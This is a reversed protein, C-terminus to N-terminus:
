PLDGPDAFAGALLLQQLLAPLDAAPEAALAAEAAAQLQLGAACAALFACGAAGLPQALVAGQPRTCLVGGPPAQLPDPGAARTHLWVAAALGAPLLWRTAPHLPLRRAALAAPADAALRAAQLVPADAAAHSARWLVDLRAVDALWPLGAATPVAALFAPFSADGYALLRADAPPHVRVHALAVDDFWADGVLARVAPFNAQLAEVCGKAITNRHVALGPQAALAGCGPPVPAAPDLLWRVLADNLQM